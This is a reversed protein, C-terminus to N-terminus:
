AVCCWSKNKRQAPVLFNTSLRRLRPTKETVNVAVMEEEAEVEEKIKLLMKILNHVYRGISGQIAGEAGINRQSIDISNGKMFDVAQAAYFVRLRKLIVTTAHKKAVTKEQIHCKVEKLYRLARTYQSKEYLHVSVDVLKETLQEFDDASSLHFVIISGHSELGRHKCLWKAIKKHYFKQDNKMLRGYAVNKLVPSLFEYMYQKGDSIFRLFRKDVLGLLIDELASADFGKRLRPLIGLLVDVEIIDSLVSSISLVTQEVKPLSDIRIQYSKHLALNLDQTNSLLNDLNILDVAEKDVTLICRAIETAILPNNNALKIVDEAVKKSLSKGPILNDLMKKIAKTSPPRINLFFKNYSKLTVRKSVHFYRRLIAPHFHPSSTIDLRSNVWEELSELSVADKQSLCITACMFLKVNAVSLFVDLLAWSYYDLNHADDLSVFIQQKNLIDALKKVQLLKMTISFAFAEVEPHKQLESTEGTTFTSIAWFVNGSNLNFLSLETPGLTDECQRLLDDIDYKTDPAFQLVITKLIEYFGSFPKNLFSYALKISVARFGHTIAAHQTARLFTSKGEGPKGSCCILISRGPFTTFRSLDQVSHDNVLPLSKASEEKQSDRRSARLFIDPLLNSSRKRSFSALRGQKPNVETSVQKLKVSKCRKSQFISLASNIVKMEEELGVHFTVSKETAIASSFVQFANIAAEKGKVRVKDLAKFTFFGENARKRTVEDCIINVVAPTSGNTNKSPLTVCDPSSFSKRRDRVNISSVSSQHSNYRKYALSMLRASLNVVDGVIAFDHRRKDGVLGTYATGTTVGCFCSIGRISLNTCFDLSFDLGRTPDDIHTFNEVGFAAIIVLGKDDLIFQRIVGEYRALTITLLNYCEQFPEISPYGSASDELITSCLKIFIVTVDRLQPVFSYVERSEERHPEMHSTIEIKRTTEAKLVAQPIYRRLSNELLVPFKLRDFRLSPNEETIRNQRFTLGEVLFFSPSEKGFTSSFAERSTTTVRRREMSFSANISTRVNTKSVAPPSPHVKTRPIDKNGKEFIPKVKVELPVHELASRTIVVESSKAVEVSSCLDKFIPGLSLHRWCNREGGILLIHMEDVHIGIHLKLHHEAFHLRLGLLEKACSIACLTLSKMQEERLKALKTEALTTSTSDVPFWAIILADGAFDLVDGKYSRVVSLLSSFCKNMGTRLLDLGESGRSCLDESASCFGSLDAIMGVCVTSIMEPSHGVVDVFSSSRENQLPAETEITQLLHSTLIQPLYTQLARLTETSNFYQSTEEAEVLAKKEKLKLRAHRISRSIHRNRGIIPGDADMFAVDPSLVDSVTRQSGFQGSMRYSPFGPRIASPEARKKPDPPHPRQM